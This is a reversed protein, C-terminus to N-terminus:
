SPRIIAFEDILKSSSLIRDLSNYYANGKEAELISSIVAEVQDLKRKEKANSMFSDIRNGLYFSALQEVLWKIM